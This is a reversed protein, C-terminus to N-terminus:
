DLLKIENLYNAPVTFYGSVKEILKEPSIDM